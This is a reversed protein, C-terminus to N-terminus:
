RLVVPVHGFIQLDCSKIFSKIVEQNIFNYSRSFTNWLKSIRAFYFSENLYLTSCSRVRYPHRASKTLALPLDPYHVSDNLLKLCLTLDCQLRRSYQSSIGFQCLRDNYNEYKLGFRQFILRSFLRLPKELDACLGSNAAPSYVECCYDLIPRIYCNYLDFFSQPDDFHFSRYVHKCLISARLVKESIHNAFSLKDDILVGLDRMCNSPSIPTNELNYSYRPNNRGLHVVAIKQYALPLEWSKSWEIINDIAKQLLIPDSSFIKLDDAFLVYQVSHPISMVIDNIYILFLLPGSVTGQPVGSSVPISTSSLSGNLKVYSTRDSLFNHYFQIVRSELGFTELKQLLKQHSVRDFASKIDFYVVDVPNKVKLQKQWCEISNLLALACSRKKMFGFQFSDIKYEFKERIGTVIMKEM